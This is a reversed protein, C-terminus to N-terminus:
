FAFSLSYSLWWAEGEEVASWVRTGQAKCKMRVSGLHADESETCGHEECAASREECAVTSRIPLLASRM